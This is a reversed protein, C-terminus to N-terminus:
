FVLPPSLAYTGQQRVLFKGGPAASRLSGIRAADIALEPVASTWRGLVTGGDRFTVEYAEAQENLPTEAGDRWVWAGRARRTWTLVVGAASEAIRPHVPALPRLTSGEGVIPSMVPHADALGVAAIVTGPADGVATADLLKAQGDLLAFAEGAIHGFMQQETGGRGRLLGDLRWVGGGQPMARAFQIIETGVLARNAGMALQRVTAADLGMGPDILAITVHGARDIGFPSGAALVDLTTGIISRQRGSAGLPVLRGDGADRSLEAGSWGASASSVAAFVQRADGGGSGDWPLEFAVLASQGPALDPARNARGPNAIGNPFALPAVRELSLEIGTDRWEWSLTRWVGAQGPAVVLSGPAIAPDLETTRWQLSERSWNNNSAAGAILRLADAASFAAPIEVTRPQGPLARGGARQLGSQFDREPDYYRLARPPAESAAGRHRVFGANRGFDGQGFAAAAEGMMLPHDQANEPTISLRMGSGDCSLPYIPALTALLDAPSGGLSLGIMGDFTMGADVDDVVGDLVQALTIATDGGLVEFNLTPIRNGFDALQLDEFVVYATGRWAPCLGAGEAAAILPDIAQDGTGPYMRMSGGVKLMGDDGRLLNGDAWVRGVDAIARSGLAVAFSCSYTYSTVSPQGKGGGDSQSHEVLDTAWIVTGPVRLRGFHRPLPDGYSSTTVALQGLRPGERSGGGSLAMDLAGGALAGAAAFIPGGLVSGLATFILTAM